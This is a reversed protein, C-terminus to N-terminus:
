ITSAAAHGPQLGWKKIKLCLLPDCRQQTDDRSGKETTEDNQGLWFPQEM